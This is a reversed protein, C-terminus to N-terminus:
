QSLSRIPADKQLVKKNKTPFSFNEDPLTFIYGNSKQTDTITIGRTVAEFNSKRERPVMANDDQIPVSDFWDSAGKDARVVIKQNIAVPTVPGKKERTM